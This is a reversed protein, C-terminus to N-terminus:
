GRGDGSRAPGAIRMRMAETVGNLRELIRAPLPLFALERDEFVEPEILQVTRRRTQLLCDGAAVINKVWDVDSGYTLAFYYHDGRRFVNIPTRYATGSRRGRHVVVGFTPLWPALPTTLRNFYHSAFGRFPRLRTPM